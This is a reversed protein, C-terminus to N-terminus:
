HSLDIVVYTSMEPLTFETADTRAEYEQLKLDPKGFAMVSGRTYNGLVRVRLGAVTRTSYNLLHIRLREGDGSLRAVVVESGYIRLLRKEDTLQGRIKQALRGPNNAEEKPYESSGIRVNLDLRRDPASVIKYLLNRRSLLNMLEGAQDSGDDVVGINALPPLDRDPIRGLFDAMRHFSEAGAVDTHVSAHAGYVFAEAAALAAAAAPVDYYYRATPQRLIRWGNADIWPSRTASAENMRYQVTPTQLKIAGDPPEGGLSPLIAALLLIM